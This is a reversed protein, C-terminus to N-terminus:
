AGGARDEFIQRAIRLCEQCVSGKAHGVMARTRSRPEACFACRTRGRTHREFGSQSPADAGSLADAASAACADCLFVQAGAVLKAVECPPRGCFTCVADHQQGRARWATSWWSGGAGRVIQQIRQHSVGLASAIERLSGGALHLRRVMTHYDARATLAAREAERLADGYRTAKELLTPDLPTM